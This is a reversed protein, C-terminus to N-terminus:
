HARDTHSAPSASWDSAVSAVSGSASMSHATRAHRRLAALAVLSIPVLAVHCAALAITSTPSLDAPLIMGFISGLELVPAVVMAIPYVAPWRRGLLAAVTLGLALPLATFGLLTLPDVATPGTAASFAYDAGFAHGLGFIALNVAVALGVAAAILAAPHLRALRTM